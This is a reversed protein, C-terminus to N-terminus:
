LFDLCVGLLPVPGAEYFDPEVDVPVAGRLKARRTIWECPANRMGVAAM